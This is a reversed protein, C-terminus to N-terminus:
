DTLKKSPKETKEMPSNSNPLTAAFGHVFFTSTFNASSSSQKETPGNSAVVIGFSGGVGGGVVTGVVVVSSGGVGGGVVTGPVVGAVVSVVVVIIVVVVIVDVVEVLVAPVVVV